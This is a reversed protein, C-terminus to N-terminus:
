VRECLRLFLWSLAFFGVALLVFVVDGMAVRRRSVRTDRAGGEILALSPPAVSL